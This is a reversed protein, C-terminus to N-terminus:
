FVKPKGYNVGGGNYNFSGFVSHHFGNWSAAMAPAAFATAGISFGLTAGALALTMWIKRLRWQM